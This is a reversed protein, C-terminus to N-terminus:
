HRKRAQFTKQLAQIQRSYKPTIILWPDTKPHSTVPTAGFGANKIDDVSPARNHTAKFEREFSKLQARLSLIDTDM